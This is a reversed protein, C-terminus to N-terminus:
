AARLCNLDPVFSASATSCMFPVYEYKAPSFGLVRYAEEDHQWNRYIEIQEPSPRWALWRHLISPHSEESEDGTDAFKGWVKRLDESLGLLDQHTEPRFTKEWKRWFWNIGDMDRSNVLDVLIMRRIPYFYSLIVEEFAVVDSTVDHWTAKGSTFRQLLKKGRSSIKHKGRKTIM